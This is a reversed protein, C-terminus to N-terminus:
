LNSIKIYNRRKRTHHKRCTICLEIYRTFIISGTDDLVISRVTYTWRCHCIGCITCWVSAVVMRTSYTDTYWPVIIIITSVLKDLRVGNICRIQEYYVSPRILCTINAFFRHLNWIRKVCSETLRTNLIYPQYTGPLSKSKLLYFNLVNRWQRPTFCFMISLLKEDALLVFFWTHLYIHILLKFKFFITNDALKHHSIVPKYM